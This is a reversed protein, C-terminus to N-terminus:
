EDNREKDRVIKNITLSVYKNEQSVPIVGQQDFDGALNTFSQFWTFLPRDEVDGLFKGIVGALATVITAVQGVLTANAVASRVSDVLSAYEPSNKASTLLEGTDRLRQKSKIVSIFTHIQSPPMPTQDTKQWFHITRNIGLGTKDFVKPFGKLDLDHIVHGLDNIVIIMVYVDAGRDKAPALLGHSDNDKVFVDTLRLVIGTLKDSTPIDGQETLHFASVESDGPNFQLAM